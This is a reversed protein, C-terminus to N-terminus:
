IELALAERGEEDPYSFTPDAIPSGTPTSIWVKSHFSFNFDLYKSSALRVIIMIGLDFHWEKVERIGVYPKKNRLFTQIKVGLIM